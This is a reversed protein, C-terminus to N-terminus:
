AASRAASADGTSAASVERGRRAGGFANLTHELMPLMRNVHRSRILLDWLPEFKKWGGAYAVHRLKASATDQGIAGRFINRWRYFDRYARWYGAELEDKRMGLPQYVAQRTDYRDWDSTEIRGDAAM